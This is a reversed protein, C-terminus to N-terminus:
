LGRSRLYEDVDANVVLDETKFYAWPTGQDLWTATGMAATAPTGITEDGENAAIWLIKAPSKADRYRMAELSAIRGSAPDFRVVLTDTAAEGFPVRLLATDNDVPRWSVRPDTLLVAPAASSLEAWM